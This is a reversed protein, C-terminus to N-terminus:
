TRLRRRARRSCPPGRCPFTRRCSSALCAPRLHMLWAGPGARGPSGGVACRTGSRRSTTTRFSSRRCCCVGQKSVPRSEDARHAPGREGRHRLARIRVLEALGPMSPHMGVDTGDLPTMPLLADRAIALNRRSAAYTDYEASSRPVVMSWSDNGGFLFVCVLAKYDSFGGLGAAHATVTGPTRGFAYLLGGAAAARLFRRRSMREM